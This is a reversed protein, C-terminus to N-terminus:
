RKGASFLGVALARRRQQRSLGGLRHNGVFAIVGILNTSENAGPLHFRDNGGHAVALVLVVVVFGKISLAIRDFAAETGEFQV